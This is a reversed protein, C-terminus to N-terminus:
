KAKLSFFEKLMKAFFRVVGCGGNIPIVLTSIDKIEQTANAPCFSMGVNKMVEYDNLDNGVFIVNELKLNKSYCYDKLTQLKNKCGSFCKIGMKCAREEAILKQETTIIIQKIGMTKIINIGIGDSRNCRVFEVGKEDVYVYNNTFVGDFDYAILELSNLFIKM